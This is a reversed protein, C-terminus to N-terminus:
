DECSVCIRKQTEMETQEEVSETSARKDISAKTKEEDIWEEIKLLENQLTLKAPSVEEGEGTDQYMEDLDFIHADIMQNLLQLESYSMKVTVVPEKM